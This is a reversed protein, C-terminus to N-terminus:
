WPKQTNRRHEYGDPRGSIGERRLAHFQEDHMHPGQRGTCVDCDWLMCRRAPPGCMFGGCMDQNSKADIPLGAVLRGIVPRIRPRNSYDLNLHLAKHVQEEDGLRTIIFRDNLKAKFNMFRDDYPAGSLVHNKSHTIAGGHNFAKDFEEESVGQAM